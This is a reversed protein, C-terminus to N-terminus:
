AGVVLGMKGELLQLSDPVSASVERLDDAILWAAMSEARHLYLKSWAGVGTFVRGPVNANEWLSFAAVASYQVFAGRGGLAALTRIYRSSHAARV